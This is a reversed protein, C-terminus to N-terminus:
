SQGTVPTPQSMAMVEDGGLDEIIDNDTAAQPRNSNPKQGLAELGAAILSMRRLREKAEQEYKAAVELATKQMALRADPQVAVLLQAFNTM